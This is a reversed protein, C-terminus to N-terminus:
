RILAGKLLWPTKACPKLLKKEQKGMSLLCNSNVSYVVTNNYKTKFPFGTFEFVKSDKSMISCQDYFDLSLSVTIIQFFDFIYFICFHYPYCPTMIKQLFYKSNCFILEKSWFLWVKSWGWSLFADDDAALKKYIFLIQYLKLLWIWWKKLFIYLEDSIPFTFCHRTVAHMCKNLLRTRNYELM